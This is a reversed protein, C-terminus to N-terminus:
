RFRSSMPLPADLDFCVFRVALCLKLSAKCSHARLDHRVRADILRPQSRRRFGFQMGSRRHLRTYQVRPSARTQPLGVRGAPLFLIPRPVLEM